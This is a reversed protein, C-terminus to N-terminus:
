QSGTGRLLVDVDISECMKKTASDKDKKRLRSVEHLAKIAIEDCALKEALEIIKKSFM